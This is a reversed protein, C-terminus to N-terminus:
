ARRLRQVADRAGAIFAPDPTIRYERLCAETFKIAHEDRANVAQDILDQEVFPAAAEEVGAPVPDNRAYAAYLSACAQWAFRQADRATEASLHPVLLRLASPATVSHVFAIAATDADALYRRVFLRTLRSVFAGADADHAIFDITPGFSEADLNRVVDSILLFDKRRDKDMRPVAALAEDVTMAGPAGPRGPLEQYRAAWYALAEALEDIRQPTERRGLSRVAHATRIIGHTAGAMIGPALRAVWTELVEQWPRERLERLFFVDWDGARAIDGLAERWEDSAIPNRPQPHDQLRRVYWEAWRVVVDPRGLTVLAEAAMPGHNSLGPGFEPGTGAFRDLVEDIVDATM